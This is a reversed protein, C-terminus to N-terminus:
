SVQASYIILSYHEPQKGEPYECIGIEFAPLNRLADKKLTKLGNSTSLGLTRLCLLQAPILEVGQKIEEPSSKVTELHPM